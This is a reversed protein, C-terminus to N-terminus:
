RLRSKLTKVTSIRCQFRTLHGKHGPTEVRKVEDALGADFKAKQVNKKGVFIRQTKTSVRWNEDSFQSSISMKQPKWRQAKCRMLLTGLTSTKPPWWSWWDYTYSPTLGSDCSHWSKQHSQPMPNSKNASPRTQDTWWWVDCSPLLPFCEFIWIQLDWEPRQNLSESNKCNKEQGQLATDLHPLQNGTPKELIDLITLTLDPWQGPAKKHPKSVSPLLRSCTHDRLPRFLIWKKLNM